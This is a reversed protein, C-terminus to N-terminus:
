RSPPTCLSSRPDVIQLLADPGSGVSIEAGAPLAVVDGGFPGGVIELRVTGPPLESLSALPLRVGSLVGTSAVESDPDAGPVIAQAPLGLAAALEGVTVSPEADLVVDHASATDDPRPASLNLRM